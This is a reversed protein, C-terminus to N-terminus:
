IMNQGFLFHSRSIARANAPSRWPHYKWVPTEEREASSTRVRQCITFLINILNGDHRFAAGQEQTGTRAPLLFTVCETQSCILHPPM